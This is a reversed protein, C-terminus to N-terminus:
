SLFRVAARRISAALKPAANKVTEVRADPLM